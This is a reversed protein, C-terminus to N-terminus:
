AHSMDAMLWRRSRSRGLLAVAALQFQAGQRMRQTPSDRLDMPAHQLSAFALLSASLRPSPTRTAEEHGRPEGVLRLEVPAGPQPPPKEQLRSGPGEPGRATREKSGLLSFSSAQKAPRTSWGLAEASVSALREERQGERERERQEKRNLLRESCPPAQLRKQEELPGLRTIPGM